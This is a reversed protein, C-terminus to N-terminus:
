QHGGQRDSWSFDVKVKWRPVDTLAHFESHCSPCISCVNKGGDKRRVPYHHKELTIVSSLCWECQKAQIGFHRSPQRQSLFGVATEDDVSCQEVLGAQVLESLAERMTVAKISCKEALETVTPPVMGGINFRSLAAWVRYAFPSIPM